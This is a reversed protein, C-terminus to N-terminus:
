GPYNTGRREDVTVLEVLSTCWLIAWGTGFGRVVVTPHSRAVVVVVAVFVVAVVVVVVVVVVM